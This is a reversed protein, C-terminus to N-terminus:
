YKHKSIKKAEILDLFYFLYTRENVKLIWPIFSEKKTRLTVEFGKKELTSRLIQDNMNKNYVIERNYDYPTTTIFLSHPKLLHHIKPLLEDVPLFEVINLGFILDFKQNRFPLDLIDSVIFEMNTVGLEKIKKKAEQIFSFSSDIGFVFSFKKALEITSLGLACGLDLAIGEPNFPINSTLKRYVDSPKIKWRMLLLFKDSEFNENHLWKYSQFYLGDEEYRDEKPNNKDLDLLLNKLFTKMGESKSDSFWKDFTSVRKSAYNAIDNIIIAIGDIIPFRKKCEPCILFGEVCENQDTPDNVYSELYLPYKKEIHNVCYFFNFDLLSTKLLGIKKCQIISTQRFRRLTDGHFVRKLVTANM